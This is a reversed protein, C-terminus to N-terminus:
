AGSDNNRGKFVNEPLDKKVLQLRIGQSFEQM